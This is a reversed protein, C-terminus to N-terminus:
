MSAILDRIQAIYFCKFSFIERVEFVSLTAQISETDVLQDVGLNPISRTGTGLLVGASDSLLFTSSGIGCYIDYECVCSEHDFDKYNSEKWSNIDGEVAPRVCSGFALVNNNESNRSCQSVCTGSQEALLSSKKPCFKFSNDDLLQLSDNSHFNVSNDFEKCNMDINEINNCKVLNNDDMGPSSQPRQAHGHPPM